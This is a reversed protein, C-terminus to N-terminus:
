RPLQSVTRMAARACFKTQWLQPAADARQAPRQSAQPPQFVSTSSPAAVAVRPERLPRKNTMSGKFPCVSSAGRCVEADGLEVADSAAPEDAARHQQQAAVRADPFRGQQDFDSGGIGAVTLAGDVDGAFFGDARLHPQPASRTPRASAATSSAASVATSSMTAVRECPFGGCSRTILEIWVIHVCVTSCEAGPVTVCTRPAAPSSIRKALRLPVETM